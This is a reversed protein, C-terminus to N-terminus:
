VDRERVRYKVASAWLALLVVFILNKRQSRQTETTLFPNKGAPGFCLQRGGSGTEPFDLNPFLLGTGEEIEVRERGGRPFNHDALHDRVDRHDKQQEQKQQQDADGPVADPEDPSGAATQRHV